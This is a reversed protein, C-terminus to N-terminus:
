GSAPTSGIRGSSRTAIAGRSGEPQAAADIWESRRLWHRAVLMDIPHEAEATHVAADSFREIPDARLDVLTVAPRNFTEFYGNDLILRKTGFPYSPMLKDATDPDDVIDRIKGRLSRVLRM